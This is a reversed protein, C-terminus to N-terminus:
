SYLNKNIIQILAAYISEKSYEMRNIKGHTLIGILGEEEGLNKKSSIGSTVCAQTLNLRDEIIKKLVNKPLEFGTSSGIYYQAGDYICCLSLHLFGSQTGPAEVLGSEVGFSYTPKVPSLTFANYARNKAGQITEAMTLPQDAVGSPVSLSTMKYDSFTGLSEICEKLAQIKAKNTTGITIITM